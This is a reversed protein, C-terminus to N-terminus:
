KSSYISFRQVSGSLGTDPDQMSLPEGEPACVFQTAAYLAEEIKRILNLAELRSGAWVSVQMLTNRKNAPQNELFTISKGGIGQWTAYPAATGSPAVDPFVKPTVAKIVAHLDSEFTM